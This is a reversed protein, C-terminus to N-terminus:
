PIHTGSADFTFTKVESETGSAPIEQGNLTFAIGAANGVRVAIENNARVTTHAPAILTEHVIPEGDATVSIWSNETARIMLTLTAPKASTTPNAPPTSHIPGAAPLPETSSALTSHPASPPTATKDSPSTRATTPIATNRNAAVQPAPITAVAATTSAAAPAAAHVSATRARRSHHTWLLIATVVVLAAAAMLRWPLATRQSFQHRTRRVHEIRPLQLDPLEEVQVAAPAKAASIAPEAFHPKDPPATSPAPATILRQAEAQKRRLCEFYDAIAQQDDLGLHKAYTRIFGKNFVGGPLQEFHEEEIAKLMRSSIKIVKSVDDLSLKKSERATRFSNGFDAM